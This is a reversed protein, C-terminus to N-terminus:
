MVPKTGVAFVASVYYSPLHCSSTRYLKFGTITNELLATLSVVFGVRSAAPLFCSPGGNFCFKLLHLCSVTLYRELMWLWVVVYHRHAKKQVVCLSRKYERHCSVAGSLSVFLCTVIIAM